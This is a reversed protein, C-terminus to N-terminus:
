GVNAKCVVGDKITVGLRDGRFDTTYVGDKELVRLEVGYAKAVEKADSLSLGVVLRKVRAVDRPTPKPPEPIRVIPDPDRVDIVAGDKIAVDVRDPRFDMTVVSPVGDREVVRLKVNFHKALEMAEPFSRGVVLRKVLEVDRPTPKPPGTRIPDSGRVDSVVGHKIAVDVRDPRFDMTVVSPVGDREVVRLEVGCAKAAAEAEALPMGKVLSKVRAVQCELFSVRGNHDIDVKRFYAVSDFNAKLWEGKTLHGDHNLDAKQFRSKGLAAYLHACGTVPGAPTSPIQTLDTSALAKLGNLEVM